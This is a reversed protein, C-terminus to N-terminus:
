KERIPELIEYVYDVIKECYEDIGFREGISLMKEFEPQLDSEAKFLIRAIDILEQKSLKEIMEGKILLINLM